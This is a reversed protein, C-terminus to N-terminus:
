GYLVLALLSALYNFCCSEWEQLVSLSTEIEQNNDAVRREDYEDNRQNERQLRGTM